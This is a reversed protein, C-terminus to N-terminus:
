DTRLAKSERVALDLWTIAAVATDERLIGHMRVGRGHAHEEIRARLDDVEEDSRVVGVAIIERDERTEIVQRIGPMVKLADYLGDLPYGENPIRVLLLRLGLKQEDLRLWDTWIAVDEVSDGGSGAAEVRPGRGRKHRSRGRLPQVAREITDESVAVGVHRHLFSPVDRGPRGALRAAIWGFVIARRNTSKPSELGTM